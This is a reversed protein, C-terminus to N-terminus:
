RPTREIWRGPGRARLLHGQRRDFHAAAHLKVAVAEEGRQDVHTVTAFAEDLVAGLEGHAPPDDVQPRRLTVLWDPQIEEAIVHLSEVDKSMAFWRDRCSRSPASTAGARSHYRLSAARARASEITFDLGQTTRREVAQRGTMEEVAHLAPHWEEHGRGGGKEVFRGRRRDDDDFRVTHSVTQAVQELLFALQRVGDGRRPLRGFLYREEM